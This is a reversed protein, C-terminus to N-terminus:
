GSRRWLTLNATRVPDFASAEVAGMHGGNGVLGHIANHIDELSGWVEKRATRQALVQQREARTKLQGFSEGKPGQLSYVNHSMPSYRQYAGLINAVRESLNRAAVIGGGDRTFAKGDHSVELTKVAEWMANDREKDSGPENNQRRTPNGFELIGRDAKQPLPAQHLPNYVGTSPWVSNKSKPSKPGRWWIQTADLAETPFIFRDNRAWDWYPLRFTKAQALYRDQGEAPSIGEAILRVNEYM